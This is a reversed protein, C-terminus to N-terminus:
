YLLIFGVLCATPSNPIPNTSSFLCCTFKIHTKATKRGITERKACIQRTFLNKYESLENGGSNLSLVMKIGEFMQNQSEATSILFVEYSLGINGFEFTYFKELHPSPHWLGWNLCSMVVSNSGYQIFNM